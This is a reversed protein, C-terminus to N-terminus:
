RRRGYRQHYRYGYELGTINLDYVEETSITLRSSAMDVRAPIYQQGSAIQPTGASLEPSGFDLPTTTQTNAARYKDQVTYTFRGTNRLSLIYKHLLTRQTNIVVENRDRLVPSTPELSSRYRSGVTFSDGPDAGLVRYVVTTEDYSLQELNQPLSRGAGDLSFAVPEQWLNAIATPAELTTGDATTLTTQMDLRATTETAAGAGARLDVVAYALGDGVAFLMYMRDGIFWMQEIDWDFEWKHWSHHIKSGESWLYEHVLLTNREETFACVLINSTTSAAMLRVEGSVYRPIHNTVDTGSLQSKAYDGPLMEWIGDYGSSRPAAFFVNRGTVVPEARGRMSYHNLVALNANSPTLATSGSIVSQYQDAWLVLDKNFASAWTYPAAQAATSAIEIPDDANLSELTSRFFREPKTSGSLNVYDKALIVLRGQFSSMGTIGSEVFHPVPNSESDGSTRPEWEISELAWGTDTNSLKIPMESLQKLAPYAADELWRQNATEWRYYRLTRGTGTGVIYGDAVDPLRAPLKSVTRLSGTSSTQVYSSGTDTSLTIDFDDSVIYVYGAERYYTVNAATGITADAEAANVLQEAIYEPTAKDSDGSSSGDPVTYAVTKSVSTSKNTVTIRFKKGYQGGLIYFFGAREPNIYGAAAPADTLVPKKDLNAIYVADGLTAYRISDNSTSSLYSHTQQHLLDGALNYVCVEGTEANTLITVQTSAMTTSYRSLLDNNEQELLYRIFQVPSRRRLNFTLDSTMNIQETVQGDLRDNFDQQSVGFLLQKYSGEIYM